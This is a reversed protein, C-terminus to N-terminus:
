TASAAAMESASPRRTGTSSTRQHAICALGAGVRLRGADRGAWPHAGARTLTEIVGDWCHVGDPWGHALVVPRGDDPDWREYAIVLDSTQITETM